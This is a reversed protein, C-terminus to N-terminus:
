DLISSCIEYVGIFSQKDIPQLLTFRMKRATRNRPRNTRAFRLMASAVSAVVPIRPSDLPRRSAPLSHQTLNVGSAHIERTMAYGLITTESIRLHL